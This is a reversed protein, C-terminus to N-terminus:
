SKLNNLPLGDRDSINLIPPRKSASIKKLSGARKSLFVRFVKIDREISYIFAYGIIAFSFARIPALLM